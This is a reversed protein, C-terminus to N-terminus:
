PREPASARADPVSADRVLGPAGAVNEPFLQKQLGPATWAASQAQETRVALARLEDPNVQVRHVTGDKDRYQLLTCTEQVLDVVLCAPKLWGCGALMFALWAGVVIAFALPVLVARDASM